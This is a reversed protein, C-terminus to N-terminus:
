LSYYGWIFVTFIRLTKGFSFCCRSLFSLQRALFPATHRSMCYMCSCVCVRVCICVCVCVRLILGASLTHNVTRDASRVRQPPFPLSPPPVSRLLPHIPFPYLLMLPSGSPGWPDRLAAGTPKALLARALQQQQRMVQQTETTEGANAASVETQESEPLVQAALCALSLTPTAWWLEKWM